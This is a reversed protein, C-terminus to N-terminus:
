RTTMRIGTIGARKVGQVFKLGTVIEHQVRFKVKLRYEIGEKITVSAKKTAEIKATHIRTHETVLTPFFFATGPSDLELVVDPRGQVELALSLVVVRRPDDKPAAAVGHPTTHYFPFVFPCTLMRYIFLSWTGADAKLLSAKWKNLAEDDADKKQM